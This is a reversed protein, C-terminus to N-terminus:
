LASRAIEILVDRFEPPTALREYVSIREPPIRNPDSRMQKAHEASRPSDELRMMGKAPGWNLEPFKTKCAYLWTMKRARHGYKGQSVCCSRGGYKDPQTWGGNFEPRPLGYFAFAHSAEPHEIVGGFTRVYWLAHAFCGADDGLAKREKASPGGSWYRGWRECPPHAVAPAGNVCRRADAEKDWPVVGDLGFYPGGTEVFLANIM